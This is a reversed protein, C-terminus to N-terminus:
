VRRVWIWGEKHALSVDIPYYVNGEIFDKAALLCVASDLVDANAEFLNVDQPLIIHQSIGQLIQKRLSIKNKEKYGTSLIGYCDLTAAPYEEIAKVGSLDSRGWELEIKKGLLQGVEGLLKLAAHATRAIRDAGVDLPQKGITKKIFRDTERRFMENPDVNICEGANHTKLAEGMHVSWGLPADIAILVSDYSDIWKAVDIAMAAKGSGTQSHILTMQGDIYDGISIGVKKPDTACDIGITRIHQQM